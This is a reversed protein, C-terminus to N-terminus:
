ASLLGTYSMMAFDFLTLGLEQDTCPLHFSFVMDVCLRRSCKSPQSGEDRM